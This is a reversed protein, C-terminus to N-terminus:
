PVPSTTAVGGFEVFHGTSALSCKRGSLLTSPMDLLGSLVIKCGAAVVTLTLYFATQSALAQQTPSCLRKVAKCSHLSFTSDQLSVKQLLLFASLSSRSANSAIRTISATMADLVQRWSAAVEASVDSLGRVAMHCLQVLADDELVAESCSAFISEAEAVSPIKDLNSPESSAAPRLQSNQQQPTGTQLHKDPQLLQLAAQSAAMRQSVHPAASQLAAAAVAAAAFSQAAAPHEQHSESSEQSSAIRVLVRDNHTTLQLRALRSVIGQEGSASHFRDQTAASYSNSAAQVLWQLAAISM